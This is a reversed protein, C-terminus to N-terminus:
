KENYLDDLLRVLVYLFNITFQVASVREKKFSAYKRVKDLYELLAMQACSEMFRSVFRMQLENRFMDDM